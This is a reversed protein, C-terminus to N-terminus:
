FAYAVGVFGQLVLINVAIATFGFGMRAGLNLEIGIKKSVQYIAGAHAGLEIDASTAELVQGVNEVFVQSIGLDGGVFTRWTPVASVRDSGNAADVTTGLASLYFRRGGGIYAYPLKNNTKDFDFIARLFYSSRLDTFHEYELDLITSSPVTSSVVGSVKISTIGTRFHFQNDLTEDARCTLSSVGSLLGGMVTLGLALRLQFGAFGRPLRNPLQLPSNVM